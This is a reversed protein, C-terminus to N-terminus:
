VIEEEEQPTDENKRASPEVLKGSRRLVVIVVSPFLLPLAAAVVQFYERLLFAAVVWGAQLIMRGNYSLQIKGKMQKKDEMKAAAQITICMLYFNLIAILTGVAAGTLITYRFNYIHLFHLLVFVCIMAVTGILTGLAILATTKKVAPQLKM